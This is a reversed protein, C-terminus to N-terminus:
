IYEGMEKAVLHYHTHWITILIDVFFLLFNLYLFTGGYIYDYEPLRFQRGHILQVHYLCVVIQFCALFPLFVRNLKMQTVSICLGMMVISALGFLVISVFICIEGPLVKRPLKAGLICLVMLLAVAGIVSFGTQHIPHDVIAMTVGLVSLEVFLSYLTWSVWLIRRLKPALCLLTFPGVSSLTFIFGLMVINGNKQIWQSLIIIEFSAVTIFITASMYAHRTFIEEVNRSRDANAEPLQRGIREAHLQNPIQHRIEEQM